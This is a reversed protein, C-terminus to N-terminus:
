AIAVFHKVSETRAECPLMVTFTSGKGYGDSKAEVVGGHASVIHKVIALGLGYGQRKKIGSGQYFEEFIHPLAEPAIGDGNDSIFICLHDARMEVRLGVKGGEPTFKLANSILNDLVQALRDPDGRVTALDHDVSVDLTIQQQLATPQFREIAATLLVSLDTPRFNLELGDAAIRTVDLLDNILHTQLHANRKITSMGKQLTQQDSGQREIINVWGLISTLPTRLDHSVMALFHDKYRNAQELESTREAVRQELYENATRLQFEAQRRSDVVYVVIFSLCGFIILSPLDYWSVAFRSATDVLFYHIGAISLGSALLGAAVRGFWTSIMVAGIYFVTMTRNENPILTLFKTLISAVLVSLFPLGCQLFFQKLRPSM